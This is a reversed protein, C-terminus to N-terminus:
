AQWSTSNSRRVPSCEIGARKPMGAASVVARIQWTSVM